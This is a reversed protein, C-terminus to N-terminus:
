SKVIKKKKEKRKFVRVFLSRFGDSLKKWVIRKKEGLVKALKQIWGALLKALKGTFVGPIWAYLLAGIGESALQFFRIRGFSVPLAVLFLTTAALLCFCLDMVFVTRRGAHLLIRFFRFCDYLFAIWVGAAVCLLFAQASFGERFLNM